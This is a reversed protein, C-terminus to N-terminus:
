ALALSVDPSMLAANSSYVFYLCSNKAMLFLPLLISVRDGSYKSANDLTNLPSVSSLIGIGLGSSSVSSYKSLIYGTVCLSSSVARPKTEKRGLQHFLAASEDITPDALSVQHCAKTREIFFSASPKLFIDRKVSDM